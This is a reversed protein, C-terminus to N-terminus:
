HFTMRLCKISFCKKLRDRRRGSAACDEKVRRKTQYTDAFFSYIFRLVKLNSVDQLLEAIYLKYSEAPDLFSDQQSTAVLQRDEIEKIHKAYGYLQKLGSVNRIQPVLKIIAKAYSM